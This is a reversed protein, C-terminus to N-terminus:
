KVTEWPIELLKEEEEEKEDETLHSSIIDDVIVATFDPYELTVAFLSDPETTAFIILLILSSYSEEEDEVENSEPLKITLTTLSIAVIIEELEMALEEDNLEPEIIASTELPIELETVEDEEEEVSEPFTMTVTIFDKFESMELLSDLEELLEVTSWAVIKVSTVFTILSFYEAAEEDAFTVGAEIM